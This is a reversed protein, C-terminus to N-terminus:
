GRLASFAPLRRQFATAVHRAVFGPVTRGRGHASALRRAERVNGDKLELWILIDLYIALFREINARVGEPLDPAGLLGEALRVHEGAVKKEAARSASFSGEHMRFRGVTVPVYRSELRPELRSARVWMEYDGGYRFEPSWGGIAELASRRWVSAIPMVWSIGGDRFRELAAPKNDHTSLYEGGMGMQEFDGYALAVTSRDLTECLRAVGHPTYVDDANLWGIYPARALSLGRNLADYMGRDKQASLRVAPAFSRAIEHTGDTSGGDLVIVEIPGGPPAECACASRLAEALYREANYTPMLVSLGPTPGSAQESM